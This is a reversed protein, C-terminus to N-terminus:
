SGKVKHNLKGAKDYIARHEGLPEYEQRWDPGAGGQQAVNQTGLQLMDEKALFAEYRHEVPPMHIGTDMRIADCPCAEVCLGCVVCVLEDIDFSVPYKEIGDEGEREGAVIHICNAPCATSCMMCAVCRVTGDERKMLRHVGRFREPYERKEEPYRVTVIDKSGFTNNFFHRLTVSMGRILEPIYLQEWLGRRFTVVKAM